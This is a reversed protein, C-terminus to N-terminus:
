AEDPKSVLSIQAPACPPGEILFDAYDSQGTRSLGFPIERGACSISSASFGAPLLLHIEATEFSGAFDLEILFKEPSFHYDCACFADSAPYHLCARAQRAPTAAFRPAIRVRRFATARDDIGALGNMLGHFVSSLAWCLPLGGSHERVGIGAPGDVATVACVLLGGHPLACMPSADFEISDLSKEPFPNATSFVFVGTTKWTPNPGSWALASLVPRDHRAPPALMEPRAGWWHGIEYGCRIQVPHSSGDSYLLRYIAATSAPPLSFATSHLFAVSAAHRAATPVQVRVPPGDPNCFVVARGDNASPDIIEFPIGAFTQRGVPLNRMDNEGENTWAVVGPHADHRLGRDAAARLDLPRTQPAPPTFDGPLRRYVEHFRGGDRQARAAVRELIDAAYHERGHECAAKALEGAAILCIGGNMYDGPPPGNKPWQERSYPPDMTWWEAWSEGRKADRRKQYEDLIAAAMAPDPLGRNITYGTSLSMRGREDGVLAFVEEWPLEEPIMHGYHNEFFLASNARTRLGAAATRLEEARGSNGAADHLSALQIYFQHLGSNDGHFLFAPDGPHICRHDGACYAPHAFDWSDMCFSRKVLGHKLSWRLPHTTSHALAAELAPIWQRAWADDGSAQWAHTVAEAICYEVDAEIPIRRAMLRGNNLYAFWGEGLAECFWNPLGSPNPHFCDWFSGDGRQTRLWLEVGSTVDGHFYRTSKLTYAHDRSWGCEVAHRRGDLDIEDRHPSNGLERALLSFLYQLPAHDCRLDTRAVMRFRCQALAPGGAAPLAEVTQWGPAGRAVIPAACTGPEALIESCVRGIADRVVIRLPETAPPEFVVTGNEFPSWFDTGSDAKRLTLIKM